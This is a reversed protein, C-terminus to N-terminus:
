AQVDKIIKVEPAYFEDKIPDYIDGIGAFKNRIKANYSTQLWTGGLGIQNALYDQGDEEFENPIVLVRIVENNENIEAFHAMIAVVGIQL